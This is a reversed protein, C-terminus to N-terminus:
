CLIPKGFVRTESQIFSRLHTLVKLNSPHQLYRILIPLLAYILQFLFYSQKVLHYLAFVHLSLLQLNPNFMLLLILALYNSVFLPALYMFRLYQNCPSILVDGFILSLYHFLAQLFNFILYNHGLILGSFLSLMPLPLYYKVIWLFYELELYM